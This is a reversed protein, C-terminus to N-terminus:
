VPKGSYSIGNKIILGEMELNFLYGMIESLSINFEEVLQDPTADNKRIYEFIKKEVGEPIYMEIMDEKKETVLYEFEVLIDNVDLVMKAKSSRILYNCGESNVDGIRGPCAFLERNQDIAYEATILSGSKHRAETVLVGMSLGSIIRNRIPFTYRCASVWPHFPSIILGNNSMIRDRLDENAVNSNKSIGNGLVGITRRSFDTCGRHAEYDVGFAMGSVIVFGRESLDISFTRTIARGQISVDRSGVIAFSLRDRELFGGQLYLYLPPFHIEKLQSPYEEDFISIIQFEDNKVLFDMAEDYLSFDFNSEHYSQLEKKNFLLEKNELIDSLSGFNCLEIIRNQKFNKIQELFLITEIRSDM